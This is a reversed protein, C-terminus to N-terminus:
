LRNAIGLELFYIYREKVPKNLIRRLAETYLDVQQRYQQSRKEVMGKHIRDTKFDVLIIGQPTEFYLDIIGQILVDTGDLKKTFVFPTEKKLRKAIVAQKGLPSEFFWMLKHYDEDQLGETVIIGRNKLHSIQNKLSALDHINSYDLHRLLHHIRTGREEPSLDCDAKLFKPQRTLTPLTTQQYTGKQEQIKKLGTVSMKAPLSEEVEYTDMTIIRNYDQITEPALHHNELLAILQHSSETSLRNDTFVDEIFQKEVHFYQRDVTAESLIMMMWDLYSQGQKLNFVSGGISWKKEATDINKVVGTVILREVPRTLAVYLVRMEEALNEETICQQIVLQPMSKTM